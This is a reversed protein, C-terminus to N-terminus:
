VLGMGSEALVVTVNDPGGARLAEAILADVAKQGHERRCIDFIMADSLANYLGDTCLLLRHDQKAWPLVKSDVSVRNFPGIARTLVHRQPHVAAEKATLGGVRELEAAVSHDETCQEIHRQDIQYARSDGVHSLYVTNQWFIAATLTTGMGLLEARHRGEDYVRRNVDQMLKALQNGQSGSTIGDAITTIALQSAQLGGPAGGIGDAVALLLGGDDLPNVIWSDQNEGKM